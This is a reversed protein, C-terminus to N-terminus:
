FELQTGKWEGNNYFSLVIGNSKFFAYNLQQSTM